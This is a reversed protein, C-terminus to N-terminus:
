RPRKPKNPKEFAVDDKLHLRLASATMELTKAVFDAEESTLERQLELNVGYTDGKKGIKDTAM